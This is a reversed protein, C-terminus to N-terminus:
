QSSLPHSVARCPAWTMVLTLLPNGCQQVLALSYAPVGCVLVQLVIAEDNDYTQMRVVDHATASDVQCTESMSLEM